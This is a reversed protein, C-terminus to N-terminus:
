ITKMGQEIEEKTLLLSNIKNGKALKPFPLFLYKDPKVSKGKFSYQKFNSYVYIKGQRLNELKVSSCHKNLFFESNRPKLYFATAECKPCAYITNKICLKDQILTKDEESGIWGCMVCEQPEKLELIM